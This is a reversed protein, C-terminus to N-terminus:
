EVDSLHIKAGASLLVQEMNEYGRLIHHLGYVRTVGEAALGALVLAAGGRLDTAEVQAGYLAPVGEVVCVRGEIKVTAGMRMLADAHRYRNQFINEVFVSTGDAITLMAMIPPQADTPFGPYAMTTIQKVRRLRKPAILTIEDAGVRLDCGAEAFVPIVPWLHQPVVNTVTVRGSTIAGAALYTAAVIRDPMVTFESEHLATVGHIVIMSDGAGFIKAGCSNLFNALDCIEPERAANRITTIGKALVAAMLINETAGVSPLPLHIETGHLGKPAECVLFGHKEEIKTGMKRLADIHLDIPRPGLECGGPFSLKAQRFRSLVAGLFVISSRMRSMLTESIECGNACESDIIVTHGKLNVKCGLACLIDTAARVDTLMPCNHIVNLSRNLLTATLVPLASNKAGQIQIEGCLRAGGVIEFCSM